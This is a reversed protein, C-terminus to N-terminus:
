RGCARASSAALEHQSRLLPEVLSERLLQAGGGGAGRGGRWGVDGAGGEVGVAAAGGARDGDESLHAARTTRSLQERSLPESPEQLAKVLLRQLRDPLHNLMMRTSVVIEEMELVRMRRVKVRGRERGGERGGPVGGGRDMGRQPCVLLYVQGAIQLAPQIHGSQFLDCRQQLIVAANQESPALLFYDRLRAENGAVLWRVLGLLVVVQWKPRRCLLLAELARARLVQV